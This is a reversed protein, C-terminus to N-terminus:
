GISFGVGVIPADDFRGRVFDFVLPADAVLAAISPRGGSPAYGRYHFVVIEAAPYRDHLSMAADDANWANGGFGLIVLRERRPEAAPIHLGRLPHGSSAMIELRETAPPPPAAAGVSATPFLARTQMLYAAAVMAGYFLSVM